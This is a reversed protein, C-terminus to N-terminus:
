AYRNTVWKFIDMNLINCDAGTDTDINFIATKGNIVLKQQWTSTSAYGNSSHVNKQITGVYMSNDGRHEYEDDYDEDSLCDDGIHHVYIKHESL